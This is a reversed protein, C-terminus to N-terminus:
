LHQVVLFSSAFFTMASRGRFYAFYFHHFQQPTCLKWVMHPAQFSAAVDSEISSPPQAAHRYVSASCWPNTSSGIYIRNTALFTAFATYLQSTCSSQCLFCAMSTRGALPLLVLRGRGAVAHTHSDHLVHQYAVYDHTLHHINVSRAHLDARGHNLEQVSACPWPM